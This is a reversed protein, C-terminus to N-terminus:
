SSGVFIPRKSLRVPFPASLEPKGECEKKIRAILEDISMREQTKTRRVRVSLDDPSEKDGIVVVYPIWQREADRIKKGLAQNKDNVDARIGVERAKEALSICIDLHKEGVPIFRLQIPSLWTPLSPSGESSAKELLAAITREVGFGTHLILPKKEKGDEDVYRIGWWDPSETDLQVTDVEMPRGLSDFALVDVWAIKYTKMKSFLKVIIPIDLERAWKKFVGEHEKYFDRKCNLVL